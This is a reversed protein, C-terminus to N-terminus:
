KLLSEYAQNIANFLHQVSYNSSAHEYLKIGINKLKGEAKLIIADEFAIRLAEEDGIPILWGKDESDILKKVGGVDTSIIPVKVRASELLVLPFSESYSALVSVDSIGLISDVDKRFGLFFVHNSLGMKEVQHKIEDEIPGNGVLLLKLNHKQKLKDLANLVIQHGKVPHLRAIMSIVFDTENLNFNQRDFGVDPADFNIGNFITYVKDESVGYEIVMDAFRDSVALILDAKKLSYINLWAFFKGIIGKKMFDLSPDSHLTIVWKSDINHRILSCFLNARPGHSHVIDFHNHNIYKTLQSLVSIQYRNKQKLIIVNIGLAKAETSLMGEQFVLLTVQEKPYMNLLSIVHERSGGVEGGSIIHLIKM